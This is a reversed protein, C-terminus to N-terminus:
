ESEDAMETAIQNVDQYHDSHDDQYVVQDGAATPNLPPILYFM